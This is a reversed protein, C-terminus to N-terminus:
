EKYFSEIINIFEEMNDIFGIGTNSIYKSSFYLIKGDKIAPISNWYNPNKAFDEEMVKKHAEGNPSGGVCLVLDPNYSIAQEMDLLAMPSTANTYVNKFGMMKAMTALSGSETQIYHSPPASQLVMVSKDSYKSQMENLKKELADFRAILEKGKDSSKGFADILAVTQDKVSSYPVTHGADVYYVPINAETLVKGYTDKSNAGLIVLDPELAIVTEIDFNSNMGVDLKQTSSELDAPWQIAGSKPIAIMKVGLEHLALVPAKSMVVVKEPMKKLTLTETFGKEKMSAPYNITVETTETKASTKDSGFKGELMDILSNISNIIHIGKSTVYESSLYIISDNKVADLSLWIKSNKDFEEKYLKELTDATPATPSIAFIVEPNFEVLKELDLPAMRLSVDVLKDSINEYPLMSLISGFYSMSTQQYAPPAGFLVMAKKSSTSSRFKEAREEVAKFENEIEKAMEESGFSRAFVMAEEKVEKYSISPGESTYYVPINADKLQKEYTEKLHNGMIVLDPEMSIVTELDLNNMGTEIMPLEKVWDPFKIYDPSKRFAIPKIDCRALIQMASNSLVIVKQPKQPLVLKEGEKEQMYSPYYIVFEKNNEKNEESENTSSESAQLSSSEESTNSSTSDKPESSCSSLMTISLAAALIVAVFKKM